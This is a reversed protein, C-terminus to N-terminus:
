WKWRRIRRSSPSRDNNLKLRETPAILSRETDDLGGISLLGAPLLLRSFIHRNSNHRRRRWPLAGIIVRDLLINIALSTRHSSRLELLFIRRCSKGERALRESNRSRGISQTEGLVDIRRPFSYLDIITQVSKKRETHLIQDRGVMRSPQWYRSYSSAKTSPPRLRRAEWATRARCTTM